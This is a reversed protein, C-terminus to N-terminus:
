GINVIVVLTRYTNLLSRNIGTDPSSKIIIVHDRVHNNVQHQFWEALLTIACSISIIGTSSWTEDSFLCSKSCNNPEDLIKITVDISLAPLQKCKTSDYTQITEFNPINYTRHVHVCGKYDIPKYLRM